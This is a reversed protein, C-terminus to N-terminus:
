KGLRLSAAVITVGWFKGLWHSRLDDGVALVGGSIEEAKREVVKEVLEDEAMGISTERRQRNRQQQRRHM